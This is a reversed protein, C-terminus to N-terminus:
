HSLTATDIPAGGQLQNQIIDRCFQIATPIDNGRLMEPNLLAKNLIPSLRGFVDLWPIGDELTPPGHNRHIHLGKISETPISALEQPFRDRTVTFLQQIDLVIGVHSELDHHKSILNEWFSRLHDGTRIFQNTRNELLIIPRSSYKKDWAELIGRCGRIIDENTNRGDGPHIEIFSAPYGLRECIALIMKTLNEIWIRNHWELHAIGREIIANNANNEMIRRSLCPETHLVYGLRNESQTPQYLIEIARENLFSCLDLKTLNKETRNKIFDAPMEIYRCGTERALEFREDLGGRGRRNLGAVNPYVFNLTV